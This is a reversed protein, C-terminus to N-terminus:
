KFKNYRSFANIKQRSVFELTRGCITKQAKDRSEILEQTYSPMSFTLPEVGRIEVVEFSSFLGRYLSPKKTGRKRFTIDATMKKATM